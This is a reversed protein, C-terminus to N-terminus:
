IHLAVHWYVNNAQVALDVTGKMEEPDVCPIDDLSSPLPTQSKGTTSSRTSPVPFYFQENAGIIRERDVYPAICLHTKVAQNPSYSTSRDIAQNVVLTM